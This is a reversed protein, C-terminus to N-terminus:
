LHVRNLVNIQSKRNPDSVRARRVSRRGDVCRFHESSCAESLIAPKVTRKARRVLGAQQRKISKESVEGVRRRPDWITCGCRRAITDVIAARM